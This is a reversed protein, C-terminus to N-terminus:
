IRAPRARCTMETVAGGTASSEFADDIDCDYEIQQSYPPAKGGKACKLRAVVLAADGGLKTVECGSVQEIAVVARPAVAELRPAWEANLRVAEARNGDVRVDFTSKGVTVRTAPVGKFGPSPTDCASIAFILLPLVLNRM